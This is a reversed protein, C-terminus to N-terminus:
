PAAQAKTQRAAKARVSRSAAFVEALETLHQYKREWRQLEDLAESLVMERTKKRSLMQDLLRYGGGAVARDAKVSVYTRVPRETVPHVKIHLRILRRAEELWYEWAAKDKDWTFKDHLASKPNEQAWLVIEKGILKGEPNQMRILELEEHWTMEGGKEHPAEEPNGGSAQRRFL